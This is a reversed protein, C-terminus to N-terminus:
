REESPVVFKKRILQDNVECGPPFTLDFTGKAIPTNVEIKKLSGAAGDIMRGNAYRTVKWADPIWGLKADERFTTTLENELQDQFRTCFRVLTFDKKPNIYLDSYRVDTAKGQRVLICEEDNVQAHREVLEWEEPKLTGLGASLPRFHKLLAGLYLSNRDPHGPRSHIYGVSRVKEGINLQHMSNAITGDFVSTMTEPLFGDAADHWADGIRVHRMKDGDVVIKREIIRKHDEAPIIKDPDKSALSLTGKAATSLESTEAAFSLTAKERHKWAEIVDAVTKDVGSGSTVPVCTLLLCLALSSLKM